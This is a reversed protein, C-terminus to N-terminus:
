ARYLIEETLPWIAAFFLWRWPQFSSFELGMLMPGLLMPSVGVVAVVFVKGAPKNLGLEEIWQCPIKYGAIYLGSIVIILWRVPQLTWRILEPLSNAWESYGPIYVVLDRSFIALSFVVLVLYYHCNSKGPVKM